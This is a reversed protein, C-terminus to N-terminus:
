SLVLDKLKLASSELEAQLEYINSGGLPAIIRMIPSETEFRAHVYDSNLLYRSHEPSTPSHPM